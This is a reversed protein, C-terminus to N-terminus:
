TDEEGELSRVFDRSLRDIKLALKAGSLDNEYPGNEIYEVAANNIAEMVKMWESSLTISPWNDISDLIDNTDYIHENEGNYLWWDRFADADILRMKAKEKGEPPRRYFTDHYFLETHAFGKSTFFWIQAYPEDKVTSPFIWGYKVSYVPNIKTEAKLEEWTLPENPPTLTPCDMIADGVQFLATLGNVQNDNKCYDIMRQLKELLADADIPRM